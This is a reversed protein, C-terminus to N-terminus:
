LGILPRNTGTRLEAYNRVDAAGLVVYAIEAKPKAGLTETRGAFLEHLTAPM